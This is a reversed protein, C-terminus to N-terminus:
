IYISNLPWCAASLEAGAVLPTGGRAIILPEGHYCNSMLIRSSPDFERKCYNRDIDRILREVYKQIVRMLMYIVAYPIMWVRQCNTQQFFAQFMKLDRMKRLITNKEISFFSFRFQLFFSDFTDLKANSVQFQSDSSNLRGREFMCLEFFLRTNNFDVNLFLWSYYEHKLPWSNLNDM